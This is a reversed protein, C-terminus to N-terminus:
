LSLEKQHMHAQMRKVSEYRSTWNGGIHSNRDLAVCSVGLAKLRGALSLGGMGAGVIVCDRHNVHPTDGSRMSENSRHLGESQPELVDVNGFGEIEELITSIIWIKWTENRDPVLRITGSGRRAPKDETQFSFMAEVWCTKPGFRAVHSTNPLLTFEKPGHRDSLETWAAEIRDSGYFTRMTGTLALLDRWFADKTLCDARLSSLHELCSASIAAHDVDKAISVQPLSGPLDAIAVAPVRNFPSEMKDLWM